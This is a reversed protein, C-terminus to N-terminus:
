AAAQEVWDVQREDAETQQPKKRSAAAAKMLAMGAQKACKPGYAYIGVSASPAKLPRNCRVCKM